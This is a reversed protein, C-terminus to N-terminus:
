SRRVASTTLMSAVDRTGRSSVIVRRRGLPGPIPDRGRVLDNRRERDRREVPGRRPAHRALRTTPRRVAVEEVIPGPTPLSVRGLSDEHPSLDVGPEDALSYIVGDPAQYTDGLQILAATMEAIVRDRLAERGSRDFAELLESGADATIIEAEVRIADLFPVRWIEGGLEYCHAGSVHVKLIM